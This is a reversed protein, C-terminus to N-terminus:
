INQSKIHYINQTFRYGFLRYMVRYTTSITGSLNPMFRNPLLTKFLRISLEPEYKYLLKIHRFILQNWIEKMEGNFQDTEILHERIEVRLKIFRISNDAENSINTVSLPNIERKVTLVSRDLLVCDPRRKMMRFMLDYEQSSKLEESFSGAKIIDEKRFLNASTVGLSSNILNIWLNNSELLHFEEQDRNDLTKYGAAIIGPQVNSQLVLNVQHTLKESLILDDVDLFQIYEGTSHKIGINRAACSGQNETTIIRLDFKNRSKWKNLVEVSQDTSGDNIIIVEFDGYSQADISRLCEELYKEGNYCPIVISIKM